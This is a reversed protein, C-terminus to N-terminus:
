FRRISFILKILISADGIQESNGVAGAPLITNIDLESNSMDHESLRKEVSVYELSPYKNKGTWINLGKM